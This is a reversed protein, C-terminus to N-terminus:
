QIAARFAPPQRHAIDEGGPGQLALSALRVEATGARVPRFTVVVLEADAGPADSPAVAGIFIAGDSSVRYSFDGAALFRGAQVAIAELQAPEFRLQMPASRLRQATNVRLAVSFSMGARVQEPGEWRVQAPAPAEAGATAGPPARASAAPAPLLPLPSGAPILEKRATPRHLLVIGEPEIAEVRYEGDIEDGPRAEVLQDGKALFVRAGEDQLLTGAFRYPPPAAIPAPAAVADPAETGWTRPRFADARMEGLAARAPLALAPAAEPARRAPARERQGAVAPETREEPAFWALALVAAGALAILAKRSRAEM